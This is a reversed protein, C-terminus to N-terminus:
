TLGRLHHGELRQQVAVQARAGLAAEGAPSVRVAGPGDDGASGRAICVVYMCVYAYLDCGKYLYLAM